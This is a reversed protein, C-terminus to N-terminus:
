IYIFPIPPNRFKVSSKEEFTLNKLAKPFNLSGRPGKQLRRILILALNGM